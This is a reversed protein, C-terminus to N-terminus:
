SQAEFTKSGEMDQFFRRLFRGNKRLLTKWKTNDLATGGTWWFEATYMRVGMNWATQIGESFNVHGDGYPVERFVGPKTEKLHMAAIHGRGSELDTCVKASDGAAACTINGLDPYVALYPSNIKNVRYVAKEVTNIFPTEMTEFALTVSQTAAMEVSRALNESFYARTHEDGTKYYVDYGAIQILRVGLRAALTIAKEMILLGQKRSSEDPDGLPFRRHGSLCISSVPTGTEEIARRLARIEADTWDLRALKEDTEDISLEMFDYGAEGTAVLKETLLLNAPIAKEYLGL